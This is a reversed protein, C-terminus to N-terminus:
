DEDSWAANLVRGALEAKDQPLFRGYHRAVTEPTDQIAYSALEFSGTHKLVHAALVDRVSHPGHPLLGAIAGRGTWPNFVGHRQIIWRWAQYFATGDYAAAGNPSKMTKVFFTGPDDAGRLLRPRAEALYAEIEDYLGAVDPLVLRYPRGSFFSSRANKFALCPAFVEWGGARESWRLEGRRLEALERESRPRAGRRCVLLERLNRQRFGLHLGLRIMLVARSAEAAALPYRRPCPRRRAVEDAIKRYEGLPSQAELVPAIPEFPDNHVRRLRDIERRRVGAHRHFDACARAWDAQARAIDSAEILGPLPSLRQALQPSQTLWGTQAATLSRAFALMDHEWATFFGRRAERWALHWDWLRPFVLMALTFAEPPAGYGRAPGEPAAALAGFFLGLHTAKQGATAASWVGERALGVPAFRATKFAVLAEVEATLGPPALRAAEGVPQLGPFRLGYRARVAFAQYRRYDTAGRMIVRHVWALIEEQEAAPRRDFDEPLHWALHRRESEPVAELRQGAVARGPHPLRARFHGAALGWRTELRALVALSDRHRPAKTGRLWAKLTGRATPHGKARLWRTLGHVTDGHRRMQRALSLHFAAPEPTPDHAAPPLDEIPGCPRGRPPRPPRLRPPKRLERRLAQLGPLLGDRARQLSELPIATAAAIARWDFGRGRPPPARGERVLQQLYDSLARAEPPSLLASARRHAFDAMRRGLAPDRWREDM